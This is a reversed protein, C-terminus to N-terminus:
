REIGMFKAAQSGVIGTSISQPLIRLATGFAVRNQFGPIVETTKGLSKLASEAVAEPSMPKIPMKEQDVHSAGPTKVAGPNVIMVDVGTPKMEFALAKTFHNLYAKTGAYNAQYATPVHALSAGVNLIGGAGRQSLRKGFASSLRMPAEMNVRQVQSDKDVDNALFEGEQWMGANNVLLGVNLDRTEREVRDIDKADSLDAAVTRVEVGYKDSIEKSVADLKEGNRAVLVPNIGKEALQEAFEKGIGSTAGTVVAWPGYRENFGLEKNDVDSTPAAGQLLTLVKNQDAQALEADPQSQWLAASTRDLQNLHGQQSRAQVADKVASGALVAATTGAVVASVPGLSIALAAGGVALAGKALSKLRNRSAQRRVGKAKTTLKQNAESATFSETPTKPAEQPPSTPKTGPGKLWGIAKGIPNPSSGIEM